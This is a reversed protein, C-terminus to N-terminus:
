LYKDFESNPFVRKYLEGWYINVSFAYTMSNFNEPIAPNNRLMIRYGIDLDAGLWYFLKYSVSIGPEYLVVARQNIIEAVGEQKFKYRSNGFGLQIPMISFKWHATRYYDYRSYISFYNLHLSGIASDPIGVENAFYIEKELNHIHQNYGIGIELKGSFELGAKVGWISVRQADVFSNRGDFSATPVVNGHLINKLTDSWQAHLSHSNLFVCLSFCYKLLKFQFTKNERFFFNM